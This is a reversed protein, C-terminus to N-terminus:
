FAGHDASPVGVVAPDTNGSRAYALFADQDNQSEFVFRVYMDGGEIKKDTNVNVPSNAIIDSLYVGSATADFSEMTHTGKFIRVLQFNAM